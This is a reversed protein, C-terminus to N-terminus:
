DSPWPWALVSNIRATSKADNVQVTETIEVDQQSDFLGGDFMGFEADV